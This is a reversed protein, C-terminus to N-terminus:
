FHIRVDSSGHEPLVERMAWFLQRMIGGFIGIALPVHLVLIRHYGAWTELVEALLIGVASFLVWAQCGGRIRLSVTLGIQLLGVGVLVRATLAHLEAATGNGSLLMGAFMAQAIITLLHVLLTLRLAGFVSTTNNQTNM